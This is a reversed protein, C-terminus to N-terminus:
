SRPQHPGIRHQIARRQSASVASAPTQAPRKREPQSQNELVEISSRVADADGVIQDHLASHAPLQEDLMSKLMNRVEQNVLAPTIVERAISLVAEQTGDRVGDRVRDTAIRLQTEDISLKLSSPANWAVVGFIAMSIAGLLPVPALWIMPAGNLAEHGDVVILFVAAAVMALTITGSAALTLWPREQRAQIHERPGTRDFM